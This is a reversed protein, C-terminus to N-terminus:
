VGSGVSCGLFPRYLRTRWGKEAATWSFVDELNLSLKDFHVEIDVVDHVM